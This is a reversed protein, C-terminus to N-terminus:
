FDRRWPIKDQIQEELLHLDIFTDNPKLFFFFEIVM